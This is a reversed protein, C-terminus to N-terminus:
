RAVYCGSVCLGTKECLTVFMRYPDSSLTEKIVTGNLAETGMFYQAMEKTGVTLLQEKWEKPSESQPLCVFRIKKWEEELAKRIEGFDVAAGEAGLILHGDAFYTGDKQNHRKCQTFDNYLMCRMECNLNKPDVFPSCNRSPTVPKVNMVCEEKQPGTGESGHYLLLTRERGEGVAFIRFVWNGRRFTKRDEVEEAEAIGKGALYNKPDRVFGIEEKTFNGTQEYEQALRELSEQPVAPFLVRDTQCWKFAQVAQKVTQARFDALMMLHFHGKLREDKEDPSTCSGSGGGLYLFHFAEEGNEKEEAMSGSCCVGGGMSRYIFRYYKAEM